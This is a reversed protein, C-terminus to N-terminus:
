RLVPANKSSVFIQCDQRIKNLKAQPLGRLEVEEVPQAYDKNKGTRAPVLDIGDAALTTLVSCIAPSCRFTEAITKPSWDNRKKDAFLRPRATNWEYIDQYEDGVLVIHKLDSRRLHDLLAHQVETMDQAEDVILVPFRLRLSRTLVASKALASFALYNANSQVAYGLSWGYEKLRM